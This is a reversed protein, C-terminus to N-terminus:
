RGRGRRDPGVRPSHEAAGSRRMWSRELEDARDELEQLEEKLEGSRDIAEQAEEDKGDQKLEGIKSSVENREQRLVDGEAKLERWEDDM